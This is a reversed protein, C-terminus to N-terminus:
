WRSLASELLAVGVKSALSSDILEDQESDIRLRLSLM